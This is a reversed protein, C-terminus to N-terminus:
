AIWGTPSRNVGVKNLPPTFLRANLATLETSAM